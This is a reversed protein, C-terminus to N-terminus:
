LGRRAESWGTSGDDCRQRQRHGEQKGKILIRPVVNPGAPYYLIIESGWRLIGLKTVDVM